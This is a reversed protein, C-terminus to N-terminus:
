PNLPFPLFSHLCHTGKDLELLYQSPTPSFFLPLFLPQHVPIYPTLPMMFPGLSGSNTLSEKFTCGIWGILPRRPMWLYYYDSPILTAIQILNLIHQTGDRAQRNLNPLINNFRNALIKLFIGNNLLSIPRFNTPNDLSIGPKLITAIIAQLM